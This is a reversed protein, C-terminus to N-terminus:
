KRVLQQEYDCKEHVDHYFIHSEECRYITETAM